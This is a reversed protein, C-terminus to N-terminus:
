NGNAVQRWWVVFGNSLMGFVALLNESKEPEKKHSLKQLTLQFPLHAKTMSDQMKCTGASVELECEISTNENWKVKPTGVNRSRITESATKLPLFLQYSIYNAILYALKQKITKYLSRLFALPKSTYFFTQHWFVNPDMPQQRVDDSFIHIQIITM